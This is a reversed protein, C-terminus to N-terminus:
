RVAGRSFWSRLITATDRKPQPVPDAAPESGPGPDDPAHALVADPAPLAETAAKSVPPPPLADPETSPSIPAQDRDADPKLEPKIEPKVELKAEPQAEIMAAAPPQLMPGVPAPEDILPGRPSLDAVPVRWQFADLRGTVPSLPLWTEAVVGDATWVPDHAANVARAMWERARGIDGQEAEEIQAMLIAVRRTPVALLPALAARAEAFEHAEFAARAVVLASEPDGEALRQLTRMRILRDRASIGPVIDAFAAAIDPHPSERWATELVRGAKRRDGAEALLRGALAAAPVLGPALKVAELSLERATGRDHDKLSLARATLLVARQRQFSDKDVLGGKRNRELAELAAPWDGDISRFELAAHGAWALSPATQAAEEAFARAAVSDNRRRAEIYLGHLGLLKTDPREVMARFATEAGDREGSLQATQAQLLLLLPEGSVLRAAEAAFRRAAGVDGAGIAVLGRAIAHQGREARRHAFSRALHHPARMVMRLISWLLIAACTLAAVAGILVGVSTDARYGLWTVVVEGPRDALWSAVFAFAATVALFVAVRIM